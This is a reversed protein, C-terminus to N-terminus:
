SGSQNTSSRIKKKIRYLANDVSKVSCSLELAIDSYSRGEAYLSLVQWEFRSLLAKCEELSFSMPLSFKPETIAEKRIKSQQTKIKRRSKRFISILRNKICIQAYLGFTIKTEQLRFTRAADSFALSAEQVLDEKDLNPCTVSFSHAMSSILPQYRKHLENFAADSGKQIAELLSKDDVM